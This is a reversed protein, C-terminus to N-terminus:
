GGQAAYVRHESFARKGAKLIGIKVDWYGYIPLSIDAQYMGPQVAEARYSADYAGSSPRSISVTVEADSLTKGDRDGVSIRVRNKGTRLPAIGIDAVWGTALSENRVKDWELGREYPKDVVVADRFKSGVFISGVTAALGAIVVVIIFIRM